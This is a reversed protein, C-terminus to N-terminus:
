RVVKNFKLCWFHEGKINVVIYGSYADSQM